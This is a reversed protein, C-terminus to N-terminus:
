CPTTASGYFNMYNNGNGSYSAGRVKGSVNDYIWYIGGSLTNMNDAYIYGANSIDGTDFTVNTLGNTSNCAASDPVMGNNALYNYRSGGGGATSSDDVDIGNYASAWSMVESKTTGAAGFSKLWYILENDDHAVVATIQGGVTDNSYIVYGGTPRDIGRYFGTISTPGFDAADGDNAYTINGKTTGVGPISSAGSKVLYSM